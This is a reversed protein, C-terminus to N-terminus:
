FVQVNLELSANVMETLGDEIEELDQYYKESSRM